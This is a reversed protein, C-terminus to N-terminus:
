LEDFRIRPCIGIENQIQKTCLTYGVATAPHIAPNQLFERSQMRRKAQSRTAAPTGTPAAALHELKTNLLATFRRYQLPVAHQRLLKRLTMAAKRLSDPFRILSNLHFDSWRNLLHAVFALDDLSFAYNADDTYIGFM